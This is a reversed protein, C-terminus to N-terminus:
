ALWYSNLAKKFFLKRKIISFNRLRGFVRSDHKVINKKLQGKGNGMRANKSKFSRVLNSKPYIFVFLKNKKAFKRLSKVLQILKKKSLLNKNKLFLWNNEPKISYNRVYKRKFDSRNIFLKKKFM